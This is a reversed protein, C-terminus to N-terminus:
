LPGGPVAIRSWSEAAAKVANEVDRRRVMIEAYRLMGLSIWPPVNLGEVHFEGTGVDFTISLSFTLPSMVDDETLVRDQGEGM